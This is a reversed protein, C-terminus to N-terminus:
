LTCSLVSISSGISPDEELVLLREEMSGAVTGCFRARVTVDRLLSRLSFIVCASTLNIANLRNGKLKEEFGAKLVNM